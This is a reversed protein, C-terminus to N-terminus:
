ANEKTQKKKQSYYATLDTLMRGTFLHEKLSKLLVECREKQQPSMVLQERTARLMCSETTTNKEDQSLGSLLPIFGYNGFDPAAQQFYKTVYKVCEEYPHYTSMTPVKNWCGGLVTVGFKEFWAKNLNTSDIADGVGPRGVLLVPSFDLARAMHANSIEAISGVSPYGVGDVLVLKRGKGITAVAKRVLEYRGNVGITDKGDIVDRTFGEYFRVPGIGRHAIGKWECFQCVLQVDECQTVPKIYALEQPKLGADLLGALIGMAVTSKGSGSKDGALVLLMPQEETEEITGDDSKKQKKSPPQDSM